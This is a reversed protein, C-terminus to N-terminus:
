GVVRGDAPDPNNLPTRPDGRRRRRHRLRDPHPAPQHTRRVLAALGRRTRGVLYHWFTSVTQSVSPLFVPDRIFTAVIQWVVGLGILGATGTALRRGRARRRARRYAALDNRDAREDLGDQDEPGLLAAVTEEDDALLRDGLPPLSRWVSM